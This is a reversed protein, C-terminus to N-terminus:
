IHILSLGGLNALTFRQGASSTLAFDGGLQTGSAQPAPKTGGGGYIAAGLAFAIVAVLGLAWGLPNGKKDKTPAM